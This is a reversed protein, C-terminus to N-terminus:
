VIIYMKIFNLTRDLGKQNLQDQIKAIDSLLKQIEGRLQKLQAEQQM